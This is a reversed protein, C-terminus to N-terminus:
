TLRLKRGQVKTLRLRGSDQSISTTKIRRGTSIVGISSPSTEAPTSVKSRIRSKRKGAMVIERGFSNIWSRALLGRDACRQLYRTWDFAIHECDQQEASLPMYERCCPSCSRHVWKPLIRGDMLDPTPRAGSM